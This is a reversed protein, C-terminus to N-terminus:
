ARCRCTMLKWKTIFRLGTQSSQRGERPKLSNRVDDTNNWECNSLILWMARPTSVTSPLIGTRLRLRVVCTGMTSCGIERRLFRRRCMKSVSWYPRAQVKACASLSSKLTRLGAIMWRMPITTGIVIVWVVRALAVLFMIFFVVRVILRFLAMSEPIITGIVIAMIVLVTNLLLILLAWWLKPLLVIWHKRWIIREDDDYQRNRRFRPMLSRRSKEKPVPKVTQWVRSPFDLTHGLRNSLTLSIETKTEAASHRQREEQQQRILSNLADFNRTYTFTIKGATSATQIVTTGYNLLGGLFTRDEDIQQIQDLPAEKRVRSILIVKEKTLPM